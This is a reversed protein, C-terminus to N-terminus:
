THVREREPITLVHFALTSVWPTRRLKKKGNKVSSRDLIGKIREAVYADQFYDDVEYAGSVIERLGLKEYINSVVESVWIPSIVLEDAVDRHALNFLIGLRIIEKERDTFNAVPKAGDLIVLNDPIQSSTDQIAQWVTPTCVKNGANVHSVASALSYLIENKLLYGSLKGESFEKLAGRHIQTGTCVINPPQPLTRFSEAIKIPWDPEGPMETDLLLVDPRDNGDRFYHDVDEMSGLESIVRTRWDRALLMDMLDRSYPDDEVIIVRIEKEM